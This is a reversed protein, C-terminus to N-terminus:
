DPRAGAFSLAEPSTNRQRTEDDNPLTIHPQRKGHSSRLGAEANDSDISVRSSHLLQSASRGKDLINSVVANLPNQASSRVGVVDNSSAAPKSTATIM